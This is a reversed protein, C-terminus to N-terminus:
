NYSMSFGILVSLDPRVDQGRAVSIKAVRGSVRAVMDIRTSQAERQVLLPEPRALYWIALGIIPLFLAGTIV